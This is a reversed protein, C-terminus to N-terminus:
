LVIILLTYFSALLKIIKLVMSRVRDREELWAFTPFADSLSQDDEVSVQFRENQYIYDM